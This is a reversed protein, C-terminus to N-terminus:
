CRLSLLESSSSAHSLAPCPQSCPHSPAGRWTRRALRTPASVLVLLTHLARPYSERQGDAACRAELADLASDLAAGHEAALTPPPSAPTAGLAALASPLSAAPEAEARRLEARMANLAADTRSSRGAPSTSSAPANLSMQLAGESSDGVAGGASPRADAPPSVATTVVAPEAEAEAAVGPDAEKEKSPEIFGHMRDILSEEHSFMRTAAFALAGLAAAGVAAGGLLLWTGTSWSGGEHVVAPVAERGNVTGADAASTAAKRIAEDIQAPSLGKGELFRRKSEDPTNRVTEHLLFRIARATIM